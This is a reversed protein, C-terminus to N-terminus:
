ATEHQGPTGARQLEEVRERGSETIALKLRCPEFLSKPYDAVKIHGRRRLPEILLLRNLENTAEVLKTGTTPRLNGDHAAWACVVFWMQIEKEEQLRRILSDPIAAIQSDLFVHSDVTDAIDKRWGELPTDRNRKLLFWESM